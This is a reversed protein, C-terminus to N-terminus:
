HDAQRRHRTPAANAEADQRQNIVQDLEQQAQEMRLRVRQENLIWPLLNWSAYAAVKRQGEGRPEVRSQVINLDPVNMVARVIEETGTIQVLGM